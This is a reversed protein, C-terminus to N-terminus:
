CYIQGLPHAHPDEIQYNPFKTISYNSLALRAQPKLNTSESIEHNSNYRSAPM